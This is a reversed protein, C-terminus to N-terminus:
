PVDMRRFRWLAATFAAVTWAALGAFSVPDWATAFGEWAGLASGPLFRAILETGEAGFMAAGSLGARAMADVLLALV